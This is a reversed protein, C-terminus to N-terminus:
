MGVYRKIQHIVARTANAISLVESSATQYKTKDLRMGIQDVAKIHEERLAGTAAYGLMKKSSNYDYLAQSFLNYDGSGRAAARSEERATKELNEGGAEFLRSIDVAKHEPTIDEAIKGTRLEQMSERILGEIESAEKKREEELQRLKKIREEPSLKNLEKKNLPM